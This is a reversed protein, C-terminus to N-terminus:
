RVPRKWRQGAHNPLPLFSTHPTFAWLRGRRFSRGQTRFASWCPSNDQSYATDFHAGWSARRLRQILRIGMEQAPQLPPLRSFPGPPCEASGISASRRAAEAPSSRHRDTVPRHLPRAQPKHPQLFASIKGGATYVMQAGDHTGAASAPQHQHRHRHFDGCSLGVCLYDNPNTPAEAARAPSHHARSRGDM